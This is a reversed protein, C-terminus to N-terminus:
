KCLSISYYIFIFICRELTKYISGFFIINSYVETDPLPHISWMTMGNESLLINVETYNKFQVLNFINFAKSQGFQSLVNRLGAGNSEVTKDVIEVSYKLTSSSNLQKIFDDRYDSDVINSPSSNMLFGVKVVDKCYVQQIILVLTIIIFLNFNM